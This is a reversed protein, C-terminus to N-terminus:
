KIGRLWKWDPHRKQMAAQMQALSKDTVYIEVQNEYPFVLDWNRESGIGRANSWVSGIRDKRWRYDVYIQQRDSSHSDARGIRIVPCGMSNRQVIAIRQGVQLESAVEIKYMTKRKSM